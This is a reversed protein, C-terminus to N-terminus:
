NRFSHPHQRWHSLPLSGIAQSIEVDSLLGKQELLELLKQLTTTQAAVLDCIPTVLAMWLMDVDPKDRQSM